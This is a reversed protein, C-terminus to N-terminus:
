RLVRRRFVLGLPQIGSWNKGPKLELPVTRLKVIRSTDRANARVSPAARDGAWGNFVDAVPHATGLANIPLVRARKTSEIDPSHASSETRALPGRDMFYGRYYLFTQGIRVTVKRILDRNDGYWIDKM